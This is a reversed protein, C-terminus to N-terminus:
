TKRSKLKQRSRLRLDALTQPDFGKDGLGNLVLGAATLVGAVEKDYFRGTSLKVLTSLFGVLFSHGSRKAPFHQKTIKEVCVEVWTAYMRLIGPLLSFRRKAIRGELTGDTIWRGPDFFPGANLQEVEDAMRRLRDPFEQLAKWTKGTGVAWLQEWTERRPGKMVALAALLPVMDLLSLLTGRLDPQEQAQRIFAGLADRRTSLAGGLADDQRQRLARLAKRFRGNALLPPVNARYFEGLQKEHVGEQNDSASNATNLYEAPLGLQKALLNTNIGYLDSMGQLGAQQENMTNQACLQAPRCAAKGQTAGGTKSHARCTPWSAGAIRTGGLGTICGLVDRLSPLGRPCARCYEFVRSYVSISVKYRNHYCAGYESASDGSEVCRAKMRLGPLVPRLIEGKSAANLEELRAGRLRAGM